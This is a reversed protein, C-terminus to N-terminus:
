SRSVRLTGLARCAVAVSIRHAARQSAIFTMPCSATCTRTPMTARRGRCQPANGTAPWPWRISRISRGGPLAAVLLGRLTEIAVPVPDTPSDGAAALMATLEAFGTPSTPSLNSCSNRTRGPLGMRAAMKSTM